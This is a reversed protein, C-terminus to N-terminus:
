FEYIATVGVTRDEGYLWRPTGLFSADRAVLYHKDAINRGWLRLHLGSRRFGVDIQANFLGYAGITTDVPYNPGRNGEALRESFELTYTVDALRWTDQRWSLLLNVSGRATGVRDGDLHIGPGNADKYDRYVTDNIGANLTLVLRELQMRFEAEVGQSVVEGANSVVIITGGNTDTSFQQVQYDDYRAHFLTLEADLRREFWSRKLGAEISDVYEPAFPLKEVTSIFDANWGGSKFGRAYKGYVMGTDGLHYDLGLETSVEGIDAEDRYTQLLTTFLGTSDTQAFSFHKQEWTYRVGGVLDLQDGLAVTGHMFFALSENDVSGRNAVPLIPGGTAAPGLSAERESGSSSRFYYLGGLVSGWAQLPSAVRLEQTFQHNSENFDSKGVYLPLYDEDYYSQFDSERYATISTLSFSDPLEYEATLALGAISRADNERTDHDVRNRPAAIAQRYIAPVDEELWDLALNVDLQSHPAYRLKLRASDSHAGNLDRDDYANHVYGSKRNRTVDLQSLLGTDALPANLKLSTTVQDYKGFTTMVRGSVDEGPKGTILNIAGSVTNQGFLTGQPGRLVEVRELGLTEINVAQSRGLYVGDLYVGARMDTGINRTNNGVGRIYLGVSSPKDQTMVLNPVMYQLGAVRVAGAGNIRAESLVTMAVPVSMVNQERKQATVTIENIEAAGHAPGAVSVAALMPVLSLVLHDPRGACKYPKTMGQGSNSRINAKRSPLRTPLKDSASM